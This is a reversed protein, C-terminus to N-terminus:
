KSGYWNPKIICGGGGFELFTFHCDYGGSRLLFVTPLFIDPCLFFSLFFSIVMTGSDNVAKLCVFEYGFLVICGFCLGSIIVTLCSVIVM